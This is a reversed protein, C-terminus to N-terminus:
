SRSHPEQSFLSAMDDRQDARRWARLSITEANDILRQVVSLAQDTDASSALIRARVAREVEERLVAFDRRISTESWRQRRRRLGHREAITRQIESADALLVAADGESEGVIILSQAVDALFTVAHDELEPQRLEAAESTELDSRLRATYSKVIAHVEDRLAEGIECLGRVHTTSSADTARVSREEVSESEAAAPLWLTFTSGQGPTSEVTIDGGMLRALRRSISLGLGSGGRTRTHGSDVQHFADFVRELNADSIGIGTDRVRVSAWPGKGHLQAGPPTDSRLDCEVTVTGSSETFKVANSILNVLIQRVRQEDGIYAVGPDGRKLNVLRVDRAHAMGESLELAGEVASGTRLPERVVQMETSEMKSLDLVDNVLQLLHQSSRTLRALLARQEDTVPGALGLELLSTFGLIANIPTRIEHSMTALFRDKATQAEASRARAEEAEGIVQTLRTNAERLRGMLASQDRLRFLELFVGVKARLIDPDLPKYLVDVAGAQYGALTSGRDQDRATMFIIPTAQSRDRSRIVRAAELGDMGSPMEVDLLLVAFDEAQARGLADEASTTTVLRAGLPELVAAVARLTTPHDDVLLVSPQRGAPLPSQYITNAETSTM